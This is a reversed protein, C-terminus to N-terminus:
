ETDEMPLEQQLENEYMKRDTILEGTDLRCVTVRKNIYDMVKECDVPQYDAGTSVITVLGDSRATKEDIDSKFKATIAKKEAELVDIEQRTRALEKAKELLERETLHVKLTRTEMTSKTTSM